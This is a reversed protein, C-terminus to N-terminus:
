ALVEAVTPVRKKRRELGLVQALKTERDLADLYGRYLARMKGKVTVAGGEDVLRLFMSRRFLSAEVFAEQIALLTQPADDIGGIDRRVQELLERKLPELAAWFRASRELTKSANMEPAAGLRLSAIADRCDAVDPGSTGLEASPAEDTLKENAADPL